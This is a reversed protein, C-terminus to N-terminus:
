IWYPFEDQPTHIQPSTLTRYSIYITITYTNSSPTNCHEVFLYSYPIWTDIINISGSVYQATIYLLMVVFCIKLTNSNNNQPSYVSVGNKGTGTKNQINLKTTLVM